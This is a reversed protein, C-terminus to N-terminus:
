RPTIRRMIEQMETGFGKLPRGNRVDQGVKKLRQFLDPDATVVVNKISSDAARVAKEVRTKVDNTSTGKSNKAVDVGVVATTGTIVVTSDNVGSLSALRDYIRNTAATMRNNMNRVQRNDYAPSQYGPAGNDTYDNPMRSGDNRYADTGENRYQNNLAFDRQRDVYRQGEPTLRAQKNQCGVIGLSLSLLLVMICILSKSFKNM